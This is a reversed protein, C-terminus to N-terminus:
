HVVPKIKTPCFALAGEEQLESASDPERVQQFAHPHLSGARALILKMRVQCAPNEAMWAPRARQEANQSFQLRRM